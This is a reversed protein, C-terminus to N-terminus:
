KAGEEAQNTPKATPSACVKCIPRRKHGMFWSHCVCCQNSYNGNEHSFDEPWNGPADKLKALSPQANDQPTDGTYEASAKQQEPTLKSWVEDYLKDCVSAQPPQEQASPKAPTAARTDVLSELAADIREHMEDDEPSDDEPYESQYWQLGNQAESLLDRLRAVSAQARASAERDLERQEREATLQQLKETVHVHVEHAMRLPQNADIEMDPKLTSLQGVAQIWEALEKEKM